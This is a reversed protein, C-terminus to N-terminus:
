ITEHFSVLVSPAVCLARLLLRHDIPRTRSLLRSNVFQGKQGSISPTTRTGRPRATSRTNILSSQCFVSPCVAFLCRTGEDRCYRRNAFKRGIFFIGTTGGDGIQGRTIKTKERYTFEREFSLPLASILEPVTRFSKRFITRSRRSRRTDGPTSRNGLLRYGDFSVRM